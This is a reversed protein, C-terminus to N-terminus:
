AAPREAAEVGGHGGDGILRARNYIARDPREGIALSLM